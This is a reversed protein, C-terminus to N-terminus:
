QNRRRVRAARAQCAASCFRKSAHETRPIFNECGPGECLRGTAPPKMAHREEAPLAMCVECYKLGASEFRKACAACNIWFGRTGVDMPRPLFAPDPGAFPIWSVAAWHKTPEREVPFERNLAAESRRQAERARIEEREQLLRKTLAETRKKSMRLILMSQVKPLPARAYNGCSLFPM